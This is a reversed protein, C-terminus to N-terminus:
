YNSKLGRINFVQNVSGLKGFHEIINFILQMCIVFFDYKSYNEISFKTLM